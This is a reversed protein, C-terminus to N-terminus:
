KTSGKSTKSEYGVCRQLMTAGAPRYGVQASVDGGPRAISCVGSYTFNRCETCRVRDDGPDNSRLVGAKTLFYERADADSRCKRLVEAVTPVDTEGIQALWRQLASEEAATLPTSAQSAGSAPEAAVSGPYAALAEGHTAEPSFTVLLPSRDAFHLLWAFTRLDHSLHDNSAAHSETADTYRPLVEVSSGNLPPLLFGSSGREFEVDNNQSTDSTDPTCALSLLPKAQYTQRKQSTDPTDSCTQNEGSSVTSVHSVASVDAKRRALLSDLAM